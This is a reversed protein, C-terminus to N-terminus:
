SKLERGRRKSETIIIKDKGTKLLSDLWSRLENESIEACYFEMESSDEEKPCEIDFFKEEVAAPHCDSGVCCITRISPNCYCM